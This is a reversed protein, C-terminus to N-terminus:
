SENIKWKYRMVLYVFIMLFIGENDSNLISDVEPCLNSFIGDKAENMNITCLPDAIFQDDSRDYFAVTPLIGHDCNPQSSFFM